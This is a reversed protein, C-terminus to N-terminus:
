YACKGSSIEELRKPFTAKLYRSLNNWSQDADIELDKPVPFPKKIKVYHIGYYPIEAKSLAQQMADINRQEDDIFVIREYREKLKDLLFLLLVSKDQGSVMYLGNHYSVTATKKGDASRWDYIAGDHMDGIMAPLLYGAKTLERVTAGRYNSSRSTLFLKDSKISNFIQPADQQTVKQTGSEYNLAIIDFRCPVPTHSGNKTIDKQWEYWYESGFFTDSTLLTDDIDFVFLTRVKSQQDILSVDKLDESDVYTSEIKTISSFRNLDGKTRCGPLTIVALFIILLRSM